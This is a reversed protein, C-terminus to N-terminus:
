TSKPRVNVRNTAAVYEVEFPRDFTAAFDRVQQSMRDFSDAVYYIPQYTTIPYDVRPLPPPRNTALEHSCSVRVPLTVSALLCLCVSILSLSLPYM